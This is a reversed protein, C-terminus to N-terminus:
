KGAKRQRARLMVAVRRGARVSLDGPGRVCGVLDAITEYPRTSAAREEAELWKELAARAAASPTLRRRRAVTNLRVRTASDLRIAMVDRPM